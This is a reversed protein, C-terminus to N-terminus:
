YLYEFGLGTIFETKESIFGEKARVILNFKMGTGLSTGLNVSADLTSRNVKISSIRGPALKVSPFFIWMRWPLNFKTNISYYKFDDVIGSAAKYIVISPELLFSTKGVINYSYLSIEYGKGNFNGLAGNNANYMRLPVKIGLVWSSTISQDYAFQVVHTGDIKRIKDEDLFDMSYSYNLSTEWTRMQNFFQIGMGLQHTQVNTYDIETSLATDLLFGYNVVFAFHEMLVPAFGVDFLFDAALRNSDAKVGLIPIGVVPTVTRNTTFYIDAKSKLDLRKKYRVIGENLYERIVEIYRKAEQSLDSNDKLVKDFHYIASEFSTRDGFGKNYLCVGSYYHALNQFSGDQKITRIFAPLANDYDEGMFYIYGAYYSSEEMRIGAFEAKNFESLAEQYRKIEYLSVGLYYHFAQTEPEKTEFTEFSNIADLHKGTKQYAIGILFYIDKDDTQGKLGELINLAEQYDGKDMLSVAKSKSIDTRAM